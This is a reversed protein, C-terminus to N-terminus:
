PFLIGEKHEVQVPISKLVKSKPKVEEVVEKKEAPKEEEVKEVEKEFEKELKDWERYDRPKVQKKSNSPKM